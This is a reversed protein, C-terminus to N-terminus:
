LLNIKEATSLVSPNSGNKKLSNAIITKHVNVWMHTITEGPLYM